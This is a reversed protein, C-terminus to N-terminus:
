DVRQATLGDISQRGWILCTWRDKGTVHALSKARQPAAPLQQQGGAEHAAWADDYVTSLYREGDDPGIAIVVDNPRASAVWRAVWCAAGTTPGGFLGSERHLWRTAAYATSADIWHVEDFCAHDLNGPMISNGLGRLQRAGNPLGFLVSGFTDVGVLRARPDRKRLARISGVASGGSGVTAVLTVNAGIYAAILQALLEYSEANRPNDYQRSWFARPIREITAQLCALRARQYSGPFEAADVKTVVAGLDRLRNEFRADVAPDTVIELGLGYDRCVLALGLAFNGSSSEVVTDGRRIVGTRLASEVIRRAPLLKMISFAAVYLNRDLRVVRPQSVADSFREFLM